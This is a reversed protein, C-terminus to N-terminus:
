RGVRIRSLVSILYSDCEATFRSLALDHYSVRLKRAMEDQDLRYFKQSDFLELIKDEVLANVLAVGREDQTMRNHDIKASLAQYLVGVDALPMIPNKESELERQYLDFFIGSMVNPKAVVAKRVLDAQGSKRLAWAVVYAAFVPNSAVGNATLFPHQPGFQDVMEKYTTYYAEKPLEPLPPENLGFLNSAVLQLQDEVTYLTDLTQPTAEAHRERFQDRLKGRERELISITIDDILEIQNTARLNAIKLQPNLGDAELTFECIADLVPAYGAFRAQDSGAVEKLKAHAQEALELFRPGHGRYASAVKESRAAVLPLKSRLYQAAQDDTFFEVTLLCAEFGKTSLLLYADEAALGRGLLVIPLADPAKAIEALDLLGAEFGEPTARMQAEDLADVVLGIEGRVAASPTDLGFARSLGGTFFNGGLPDTKALDVLVSNTAAAVASAFSSKGVAGPAAIILLRAHEPDGEVVSLKPEVFGPITSVGALWGPRESAATRKAGALRRKWFTVIDPM